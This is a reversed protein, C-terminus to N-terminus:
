RSRSAVDAAAAEEALVCRPEFDAVVMHAVAAVVADEDPAGCDAFVAGDNGGVPDLTDGCLAAATALVAIPDIHKTCARHHHAVVADGIAGERRDTGIGARVTLHDAIGARSETLDREIRLKGELARHSGVVDDIVRRHADRDGIEVLVTPEGDNLAVEDAVDEEALIDVRAAPMATSASLATLPLTM